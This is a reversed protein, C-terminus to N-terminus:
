NRAANKKEKIFADIVPIMVSAVIGGSFGNNYLTIGGHIVGVNTVLIMHLAGAILGAITGYTGAIPALTTSFLVSIIINTTSLDNGFFLATAITGLVVPLCNKIHKGFAGFGTVTFIGALVPGNVVGGILIVYFLCAFGLISMNLFTIGYGVLHTFDTFLRGRYSFIKVYDIVARRNILIGTTMLALFFIVLLMVTVMQNKESIITVPEVTIGFSRLFGTLVTGIIGSTFGVNYLNYGDHFKLMHSSLPVIVFGIFIGVLVAVVLGTLLPLFGSFSIESIMPSLATGFMLVVIIDRMLIKQYRAYLYGGIYIPLINYINKGFFSFGIVTFYAAILPGNIKLRYFYILFFNIFGILAVNIFAAGIGGVEIFDTFLITPSLVINKFGVIITYFSGDMLSYSIGMVVSLLPVFLFLVMLGKRGIEKEKVVHYNM